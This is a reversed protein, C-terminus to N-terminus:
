LLLVASLTICTAQDLRHLGVQQSVVRLLRRAAAALGLACCSRVAAGAPGTSRTIAAMRVELAFRARNELPGGYEDSRHNSSSKLFQDIIYRRVTAGQVWVYGLRERVTCLVQCSSALGCCRPRVYLRGLVRCHPGCTHASM